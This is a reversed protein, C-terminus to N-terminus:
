FKARHLRVARQFAFIKPKESKLRKTQKVYKIVYNEVTSPQKKIHTINRVFWASSITVFIATIVASIIKEVPNM